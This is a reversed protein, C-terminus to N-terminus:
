KPKQDNVSLYKNKDGDLYLTLQQLIDEPILSWLPQAVSRTKGLAETIQLDWNRACEEFNAIDIGNRCNKKECSFIMHHGTSIVGYDTTIEEGKQIDSVAIDFGYGTTLTNPWCCHNMYKGFDWCLVLKGEPSNYAYKDLVTRYPETKFKPNDPDLIIDLQDNVFTITGKPIFEKAFLGYGKENSVWRLLATSILM